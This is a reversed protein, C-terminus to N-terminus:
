EVGSASKPDGRCHKQFRRTPIVPDVFHPSRCRSVLIKKAATELIQGHMCAPWLTDAAIGLFRAHEAAPFRTLTSWLRLHCQMLPVNWSACDQLGRSPSCIMHSPMQPEQTRRGPRPPSLSPAREPTSCFSAATMPLCPAPPSAPPRLLLVRSARRPLEAGFLAAILAAPTLEPLSGAKPAEEARRRKAQAVEARRERRKSEEASCTVEGAGEGRMRTRGADYGPEIGAPLNTAAGACPTGSRRHREVKNGEGSESAAM